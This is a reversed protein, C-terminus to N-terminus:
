INYTYYQTIKILSKLHTGKLSKNLYFTSLLSVPILSSFVHNQSLGNQIKREVPSLVANKEMAILGFPVSFTRILYYIFMNITSHKLTVLYAIISCFTQKILQNM